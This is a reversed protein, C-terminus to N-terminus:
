ILAVVSVTIKLNLFDYLVEIIVTLFYNYWDHEYMFDNIFDAM